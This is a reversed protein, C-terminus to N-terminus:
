SKALGRGAIGGYTLGAAAGSLALLATLRSELAGAGAAALGLIFPMAATVAATGITTWRLSRAGIVEGIVAVLCVPVFCLTVLARWVAWAGYAALDGARGAQLTALLFAAWRTLSVSAEPPLAIVQVLVGGILVAAAALFALLVGTAMLLLRRM